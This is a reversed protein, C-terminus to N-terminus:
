MLKKGEKLDVRHYLAYIEWEIFEYLYYWPHSFIHTSFTHSFFKHVVEKNPWSKKKEIFRQKKQIKVTDVSLSRCACAICVGKM